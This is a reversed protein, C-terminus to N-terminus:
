KRSYIEYFIEWIFIYFKLWNVIGNLNMSLEFENYKVHIHPEHHHGGVEKYIYILIGYFQSILPINIMKMINSWKVKIM